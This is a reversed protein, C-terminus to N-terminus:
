APPNRVRDELEARIQEPTALRRFIMDGLATATVFAIAGAILGPWTPWTFMIALAAAVAAAAFGLRLAQAVVDSM